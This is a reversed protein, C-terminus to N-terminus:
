WHKAHHRHNGVYDLGVHEGVYGAIPPKNPNIPHGASDTLRAGVPKFFYHLTITKASAPAAVVAMTALAVGTMRALRMSGEKEHARNQEPGGDGSLDGHAQRLPASEILRPTPARRCTLVSGQPLDSM